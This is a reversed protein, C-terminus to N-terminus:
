HAAASGNIDPSWNLSVWRWGGNEPVAVVGVTMIKTKGNKVPMSVTVHAWGIANNALPTWDVAQLTLPLKDWTKVLKDIKAKDRGLEGPATGNVMTARSSKKAALGKPFWAAIESEVTGELKGYNPLWDDSKMLAADSLAFAFKEAAVKWSGGEEVVIGNVRLPWTGKTKIPKREGEILTTGVKLEASFWAVKKEDDVVITLKYPAIKRPLVGVNGGFMFIDDNCYKDGCKDDFWPSRNEDAAPHFVLSKTTTEDLKSHSATNVSADINARVVKEVAAVSASDAVAPTTMGAIVAVVIGARM